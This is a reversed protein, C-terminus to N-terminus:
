YHSIPPTTPLNIQVVGNYINFVPDTCCAGNNWGGTLCDGIVKMSISLDDPTCTPGVTVTFRMTFPGTSSSGWDPNFGTNNFRWGPGFNVGSPFTNQLDWIWNGTQTGGGVPTILPTLNAWGAGLNIQFAIIWNFNLQTFTGLTYDVTIVDGPQYPGAPTTTFTQNSICQSTATLSFLVCLIFLLKKM